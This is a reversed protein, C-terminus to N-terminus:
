AQQIESAPNSPNAPHVLLFHGGWFLGNKLPQIEVRLGCKEFPEILNAKKPYHSRNIPWLTALRLLKGILSIIYRWGTAQFKTRIMVLSGSAAATALRKLMLEQSAPDLFHIADLICITAGPPIPANTADNAEFGVESFGFYRVAEKNINLKRADTDVGRYRLSIGSKHMLLGLLGFGCGLDLVQQGQNRIHGCAVDFLPDWALKLAIYARTWPMVAFSQSIQYCTTSDPM